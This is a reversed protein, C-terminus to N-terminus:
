RSSEMTTVDRLAAARELDVWRIAYSYVTVVRNIEADTLATRADLFEVLTALGEEYRRRVLEFTRRAAALRDDATAIADRAVVASRHAERVELRILDETEERQIRLRRADAAAASRRALNGGGDFVSWSLVLSAMWFDNAPGFTVQSGQFGYDLAVAVEPLLGSTAVRASAHAAGIGEDVAALEDRAALAHAVAEDETVEIDRLLVVLSVTDVPEDWPRGVLRNFAQAATQERVRAEALQQEIQSRDARARFEADPTANGAEVLRRAVRESEEVLELTAELAERVGRVAGVQLLATQAEAATARATALTQARQSDRAHSAASVGARARANFIPQVLRARSEYAFPLTVSLDTPFGSTGTIQNLTAYAPNVFDGLDVTGSQRSYRGDVSLSPLYRSRAEWVEAEAREEVLRAQALGLNNRLAEAVVLELVPVDSAGLPEPPTGEQALGGSPTALELLLLLVEAARRLAWQANTSM